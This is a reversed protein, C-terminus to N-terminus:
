KKKTAAPKKAAPKTAPVADAVGLRALEAGATSAIRMSRRYQQLVADAKVFLPEYVAQDVDPCRAVGRSPKGLREVRIRNPPTDAALVAAPTGSTVRDELSVQVLDSGERARFVLTEVIGKEDVTVAYQASSFPVDAGFERRMRVWNSVPANPVVTRGRTIEFDPAFSPRAPIKGLTESIDKQEDSNPTCVNVVNVQVPPSAQPAKQTQAFVFAPLLLAALFPYSHKLGAITFSLARSRYLQAM